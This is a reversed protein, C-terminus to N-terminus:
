DLPNFELPSFLDENIVSGEGRSLVQQGMFVARAIEGAIEQLPHGGTKNFVVNGKGDKTAFLALENSIGDNTAKMHTMEHILDAPRVLNNKMEDAGM